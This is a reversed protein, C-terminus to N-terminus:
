KRVPLRATKGNAHEPETPKPEYRLLRKGADSLEDDTDLEDLADSVGALVAQKAQQRLWNWIAFM